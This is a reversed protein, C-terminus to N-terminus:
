GDDDRVPRFERDALAREVWGHEGLDLLGYTDVHSRIESSPLDMMSRRWSLRNDPLAQFTRMRSVCSPMGKSRTVRSRALPAVPSGANRALLRKARTGTSSSSSPRVMTSDAAIM